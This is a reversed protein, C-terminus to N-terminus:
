DKQQPGGRRSFAREGRSGAASRVTSGSRRFARLGRSTRFATKLRRNEEEDLSALEGLQRSRLIGVSPDEEPMEPEPFLVDRIAKLPSLTIKAAKKTM